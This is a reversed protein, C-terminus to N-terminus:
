NGKHSLHRKFHSLHLKPLPVHIRRMTKSYANPTSQYRSSHKFTPATKQWRKMFVSFNIDCYQWTEAPRNSHGFLNCIHTNTLLFRDRDEAWGWASSIMHFNGMRFFTNYHSMFYFRYTCIKATACYLTFTLPVFLSMSGFFNKGNPLCITCRAELM